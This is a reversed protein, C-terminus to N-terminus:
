WNKYQNYRHISNCRRTISQNYLLTHDTFTRRFCVDYKCVIYGFMDNPLLLNLLIGTQKTVSLVKDFM